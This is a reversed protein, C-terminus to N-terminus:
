RIEDARQLALATDKSRVWEQSKKAGRFFARKPLLIAQARATTLEMGGLSFDAAIPYRRHTAPLKGDCKAAPAVAVLLL